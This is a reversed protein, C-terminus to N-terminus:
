GTLFAKLNDIHRQENAIFANAYRLNQPDADKCAETHRTLDIIGKTTGNIMIEAVKDASTDTLTQMQVAGWMVAKAIPGVDKPVTGEQMLAQESQDAATKYDSYQELLEERLAPQDVKPLVDQIAQLGTRSLQYVGSLLESNANEM